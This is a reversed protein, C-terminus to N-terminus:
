GPLRLAAFGDELDAVKIPRREAECVPTRWVLMREDALTGCVQGVGDLFAAGGVPAEPLACESGPPDFEVDLCKGSIGGSYEGHRQSAIGASDARRDNDIFHHRHPIQRTRENRRIRRHIARPRQSSLPMVILKRDLISRKSLPPIRHIKYYRPRRKPM